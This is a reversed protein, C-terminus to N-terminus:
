EWVTIFLIPPARFCISKYFLYCSESIVAFYFRQERKSVDMDSFVKNKSRYICFHWEYDFFHALIFDM